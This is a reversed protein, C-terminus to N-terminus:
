IGWLEIDEKKLCTAVTILPGYWEGKGVEDSGIVLDFNRYLKNLNGSIVRMILNEIIPDLKRLVTGNKYVVLFRGEKKLRILESFTNGPYKEQTIDLKKLEDIFNRLQETNLKISKQSMNEVM